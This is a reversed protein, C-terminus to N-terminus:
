RRRAPDPVPLTDDRYGHLLELEAARLPRSREAAKDVAVMTTMATAYPKATPGADCPAVVRHAVDFSSRSIRTVWSQVLVPSDRHTLPRRYDMDISALVMGDTPEAEPDPTLVVPSGDFGLMEIRAQECYRFYVTNNVHHYGDMDIWRVQCEIVYAPM